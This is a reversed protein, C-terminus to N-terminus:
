YLKTFITDVRLEVQQVIGESVSHQSYRPFRCYIYHMLTKSYYAAEYQQGAKCTPISRM